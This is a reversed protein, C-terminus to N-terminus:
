EVVWSGRNKQGIVQEYLVGDVLVTYVSYAGGVDSITVVMGPTLIPTGAYGAFTLNGGTYRIRAGVPFPAEVAPVPEAQPSAKPQKLAQALNSPKLIPAGPAPTNPM